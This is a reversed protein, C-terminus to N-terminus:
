PLLKISEVEGSSSLTMEITQGSKIDSSNIKKDTFKGDTNVQTTLKTKSTVVVSKEESLYNFYIKQGDNKTVKASLFSPLVEPGPLKALKEEVNNTKQSNNLNLRPNTLVIVVVVALIVVVGIVVGIQKKM